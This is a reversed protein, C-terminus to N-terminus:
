RMIRRLKAMFFGDCPHIGPMLQLWGQESVASKLREPVIDRLDELAFSYNELIYKVQTENEGPNVTCTSYMLVGGPKVYHWACDIMQRQLSILSAINEPTMRLKIDAKKGMVGLGSCPVDMIVVDAREILAQDPELADWVMPTICDIGLRIVNERIKEVKLASIDRCIIQGTGEMLLAANISKGGPAGCIDIVKMGPKLGACAGSLASSEDQVTFQGENFADVATLHDYGSIKLMYPLFSGKGVTIGGASLREKLAGTSTKLTNVRITTAQQSVSAVLMKETVDMGYANVWLRCLWLPTSYRLSLYLLLDSERDPILSNLSGKNRAINRLVGNVFGKLGKFGKRVAMNVSENCVAHDPVGDIYLMQGVGMRLIVRIVPKMKSVQISSYHNLVTDIFIMNELVTRSLRSIFSREKKDLYQYKQLWDAMVPSLTKEDKIVELLINLVIERASIEAM